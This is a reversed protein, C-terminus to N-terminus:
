TVPPSSGNRGPAWSSTRHVSPRSRDYTAQNGAMIGHPRGTQARSQQRPGRPTAPKRLATEFPPITWPRTQAPWAAEEPATQNGNVRRRARHGLGRRGIVLAAAHHGTAKPHHQRLASLWHEAGWRSTYAPDVIIVALGANTAMQILRDRLRGTPIGSVRRRFERGRKGRSPRNGERERGQLRVKAFDLDEIVIARADHKKATAIIGSVAARM